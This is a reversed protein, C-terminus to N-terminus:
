YFKVKDDEVWIIQSDNLPMVKKGSAEFKKMEPEFVKAFKPQNMHPLIYFDIYGLATLKKLNINTCDDLEGVFEIDPGMVISGASSGIYIGDNAFFKNLVKKFNTKNLWYLLNYTNGGTCYIIDINEIAKSLTKENEGKLDFESYKKCFSKIDRKETELWTEYGKEGYAATPICLVNKEKLDPIIKPLKYGSEKM